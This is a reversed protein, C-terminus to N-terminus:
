LFLPNNEEKWASELLTVAMLGVLSAAPQLKGQSPQRWGGTNQGCYAKASLPQSEPIWLLDRQGGPFGSADFRGLFLM